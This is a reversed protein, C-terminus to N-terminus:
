LKNMLINKNDRLYKKSERYDPCLQEVRQWFRSGHGSIELHVIEHVAVYDIVSLPAQVLKLNLSINGKSSCTGWRTKQNRIYLKKIKLGLFNLRKEIIEGFIKSAEERYFDVEGCARSFIIEEETMEYDKIHESYKKKYWKGLYLIEDFKSAIFDGESKQKSAQKQLSSEIREFNKKVIKQASRVSMYFPMNVVITFPDQPLLFFRLDRKVKKSKKYTYSFKGIEM